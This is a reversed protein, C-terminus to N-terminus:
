FKGIKKSRHNLFYTLHFMWQLHLKKDTGTKSYEINNLQNDILITKIAETM